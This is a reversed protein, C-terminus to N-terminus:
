YHPADKAYLGVKVLSIKLKDVQQANWDYLQKRYCADLRMETQCLSFEEIMEISCEIDHLLDDLNLPREM